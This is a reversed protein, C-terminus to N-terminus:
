TLYGIRRALFDLEQRHEKKEYSLGKIFEELYPVSTRAEQVLVPAEPRASGIDAFARDTEEHTAPLTLCVTRGANRGIYIKLM